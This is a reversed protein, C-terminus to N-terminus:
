KTHAMSLVRGDAKSIRVVAVGGVCVTTVGGRGDPCHLTGAVTWVDDQLTATFPEESRIQKKGYVPILASEATRVATASEPVAGRTHKTQTRAPVLLLSALCIAVLFEIALRTWVVHWAAHREGATTERGYDQSPGLAKM